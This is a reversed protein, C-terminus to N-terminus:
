AAQHRRDCRPGAQFGPLHEHRGDDHHGKTYCLDKVAIPIGHMVGRYIGKMIEAEAKRAQEMAVDATVTTYSKLRQDHDEIRTLIAETVEVPSIDRSEIHKAVTTLPQFHIDDLAM